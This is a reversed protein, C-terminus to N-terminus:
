TLLPYVKDVFPWISFIKLKAPSHQINKKEKKKLLGKFIYFGDKAQYSGPWQGYDVV